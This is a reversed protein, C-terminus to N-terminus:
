PQTQRAAMVEAVTHFSGFVVIRDNESATSLAAQWAQTVSDFAQVGRIGAAALREAIKVGSQGRPMDLGGVFWGDFDERVLALVSDIDKDELMSFVAYRNEAFALRRLNGVMARVAHPNHGVDLVVVPRGPIVQFRGPWDVELLGRKISGQDVPLVSSLCDLVALAATANDLQYSGRLAPLPLAHRHHDGMHFSWQNDMRTHSFDQGVRKLEAGIKKAHEVLSLPPFPDACIAAKGPRYIGAKEFGISERDNGLFAQHDIDVSVVVSVEPDFLNVADLRGGLGVELVMVDVQETMFLQVAALTGFEFYSLSVEGRAAEVALFAAMLREDDVPVMNIAVRENYRLIHPSTYTGVKYGARELMTSLMASVSGKGNTGGVMVVPVSPFLAMADRVKGARELGLDITKAHLGELWGLWQDLRTFSQPNM